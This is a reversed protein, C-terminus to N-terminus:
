EYRNLTLTQGTTGNPPLEIFFNAANAVDSADKIWERGFTNSIKGLMKTALSNEKGGLLSTNTPGPRLENVAINRGDLERSLTRTMSHVAAKTANYIAFNKPSRVSANSGIFVIRGGLPNSAMYQICGRVLQAPAFVNVRFAEEWADSNLSEFSGEVGHIGACAIVSDIRGLKDQVRSGLSSLSEPNAADAIEIHLKDDSISAELSALSGANRVVAVVHRGRDLQDVVIARGIGRSAGTVIVVQENSANVNSTLPYVGSPLLM